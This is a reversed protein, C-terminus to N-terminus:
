EDDDDDVAMAAVFDNVYILQDRAEAIAQHITAADLYTNTPQLALSMLVPLNMGTIVHFHEHNLYPFFAQNVSGGLLDTLIIVEDDASVDALSAKIAEDVPTNDLYASIEVVHSVDGTIYGLTEKMGFALKNHSAIIIKRKVM